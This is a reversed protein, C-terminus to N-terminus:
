WDVKFEDSTIATNYAAQFDWFITALATKKTPQYLDDLLVYCRFNLIHIKKLMTEQPIICCMMQSAFAKHNGIDDESEFKFGM